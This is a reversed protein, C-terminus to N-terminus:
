LLCLCLPHGKKRSSFVFHILSGYTTPSGEWGFAVGVLGFRPGQLLAQRTAGVGPTQRLYTGGWFCVLFAVARQLHHCRAYPPSRCHFIVFSTQYALRTTVGPGDSLGSLFWHRLVRPPAKKGTDAAPLVCPTRTWYPESTARESSALLPVPTSVIGSTRPAPHGPM